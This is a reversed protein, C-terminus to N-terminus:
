KAESASSACLPLPVYGLDCLKETSSSPNSGAGYGGHGKATIATVFGERPEPLCRSEGQAKM